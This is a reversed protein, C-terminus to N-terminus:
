KRNSIRREPKAEGAKTNRPPPMPVVPSDTRRSVNVPVQRFTPEPLAIDNEESKSRDVSDRKSAKLETPSHRKKAVNSEHTNGNNNQYDM